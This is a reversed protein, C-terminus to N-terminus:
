FFYNVSNIVYWTNSKPKKLKKLEKKAFFNNGRTLDRNHCTAIDTGCPLLIGCTDFTM